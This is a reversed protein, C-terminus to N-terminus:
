GARRVAGTAKACSPLRKLPASCIEVAKPVYVVQSRGSQSLDHRLGRRRTPVLVHGAARGLPVAGAQEGLVWAAIDIAAQIATQLTHEVFARQLEDTAIRDPVALRRLRECAVEIWALRKDILHVDM